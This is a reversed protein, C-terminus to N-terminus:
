YDSPSFSSTELQSKKPNQKFTSSLIEAPLSQQTSVREVKEIPASKSHDSQQEQEVVGDPVLDGSDEKLTPTSDRSLSELGAEAQEPALYQSKTPNQKFNQPQTTNSDPLKDRSEIPSPVATGPGVNILTIAGSVGVAMLNRLVSM